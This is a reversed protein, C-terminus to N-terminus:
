ATGHVFGSTGGNEATLVLISRAPIAVDAGARVPAHGAPVAGTPLATDFAPRWPGGIVPSLSFDCPAESANVLVLIREGHATENGIQM